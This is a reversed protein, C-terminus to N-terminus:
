LDKRNFCLYGLYAPLASWILMACGGITIGLTGGFYKQFLAGSYGMMASLDMQLTLMIRALDIPNLFVMTIMPIELPYDGFFLVVQMVIVDYLVFFFLWVLLRTGFVLEKRRLINSLLFAISVFVATLLIGLCILFVYSLIGTQLNSFYLVASLGMGLLYASALGLSLGIWKGFFIEARSIPLAVLIEQFPLSESFSISGFILSFLPVLLLVLNLLSASAQLPEQAGLYFILSSLAFFSFGYLLWWKHRVTERFELWAITFLPKSNFTKM